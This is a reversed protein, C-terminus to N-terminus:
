TPLLGCHPAMKRKKKNPVVFGNSTSESAPCPEIWGRALFDEVLEQEAAAREGVWKLAKVSKPKATPYLDVKAFGLLETGRVKAQPHAPRPRVEERFFHREYDALIHKSMLEAEPSVVAKKATIIGVVGSPASLQKAGSTERYGKVTNAGGGFFGKEFKAIRSFM